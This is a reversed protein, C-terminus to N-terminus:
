RALDFSYSSCLSSLVVLEILYANGLPVRTPHELQTQIQATLAQADLVNSEHLKEALTRHNGVLASELLLLGFHLLGNGILSLIQLCAGVIPGVFLLGLFVVGFSLNRATRRRDPDSSIMAIMALLGAGSGLTVLEYTPMRRKSLRLQLVETVIGAGQSHAVITTPLNSPSRIGKWVRDEIAKGSTDDVIWSYSDVIPITVVRRRLAASRAFSMILAVAVFALIVAVTRWALAWIVLFVIWIAMITARTFQWPRRSRFLALTQALRVRYGVGTALAHWLAISSAIALLWRGLQSVSPTRVEEAWCIPILIWERVIKDHRSLELHEHANEETCTKRCEGVHVRIDDGRLPQGALLWDLGTQRSQVGPLRTKSHSGSRALAMCSSSAGHPTRRGVTTSSQLVIGSADRCKFAGCIEM